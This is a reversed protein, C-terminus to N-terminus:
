SISSWVASVPWGPATQMVLLPRDPDHGHRDARDRCRGSRAADDHVSDGPRRSGTSFLEEAQDLPLLLTPPEGHATSCARRRPTRATGAALRRREPRRWGPRGPYRRAVALLDLRTRSDWITQALGSEGTLVNREPRVVDLVVYSRDDKRLRPLVGARLFSSKGAGSPGLVVFLMSTRLIRRMKRLAETARLIQTDQGFFVRADVPEFRSGAGTRRGIRNM